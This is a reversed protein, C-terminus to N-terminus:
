IRGAIRRRRCRVEEYRPFIRELGHPRRGRWREFCRCERVVRGGDVVGGVEDRREGRHQRRVAIGEDVGERGRGGEEGLQRWLESLRESRSRCRRVDQRCQMERAEDLRGHLDVEDPLRVRDTRTRVFENHPHQTPIGRSEDTSLFFSDDHRILPPDLLFRLSFRKENGTATSLPVYQPRHSAEVSRTAKFTRKVLGVEGNARRSLASRSQMVAAVVLLESPSGEYVVVMSAVQRTCVSSGIALNENRLDQKQIGPALPLVIGTITLPCCEPTVGINVKRDFLDRARCRDAITALESFLGALDVREHQLHLIYTYRGSGSREKERVGPEFINM